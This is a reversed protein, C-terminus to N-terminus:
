GIITHESFSDKLFLLLIFGNVYLFLSCKGDLNGCQPLEQLLYKLFSFSGLFIILLVSPIIIFLSSHFSFHLTRPHFQSSKFSSDVLLVNNSGHFQQSPECSGLGCGFIVGYFLGHDCKKIKTVLVGFAQLESCWRVSQVSPVLESFLINSLNEIDRSRKM